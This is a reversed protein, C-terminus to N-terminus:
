ARAIAIRDQGDRQAGRTGSIAEPAPDEAPLPGDPDRDSLDMGWVQGVLSLATPGTLQSELVWRAKEQVESEKEALM